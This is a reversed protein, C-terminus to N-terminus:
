IWLMLTASKWLINYRTLSFYLYMNICAAAWWSVEKSEQLTWVYYQFSLTFFLSWYCCSSVEKAWSREWGVLEEIKWFKKHGQLNPVLLCHIKQLYCMLKLLNLAISILNFWTGRRSTRTSALVEKSEVGWCDAFTM